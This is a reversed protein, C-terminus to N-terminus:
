RKEARVVIEPRAPLAAEDIVDLASPPKGRGHYRVVVKAVAPWSGILRRGKRVEAVDLVLLRVTPHGGPTRTGSWM